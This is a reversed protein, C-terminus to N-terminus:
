PFLETLPPLKTLTAFASIIQFFQIYMFVTWRMALIKEEMVTLFLQKKKVLTLKNAIYPDFFVDFHPLFTWRCVILNRGKSRCLCCFSTSVGCYVDSLMM